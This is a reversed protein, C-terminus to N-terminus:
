KPLVEFYISDCSFATFIGLGNSINTFPENLNRSDQKTSEYLKAYEENVKFVRVLHTGLQKITILPPFNYKNGKFPKFLFKFGAGARGGTDIDTPDPEINEVIIFFYDDENADFEVTIPDLELISNTADNLDIKFTDNSITVGTPPSPITTTATAKKNFYEVAIEYKDGIKIPLDNHPYHYQGSLTDKATLAYSIGNHWIQVTADTIKQVVSDNSGYKLQATLFIDDVQEGAYLYAQVVVLDKPETQVNLDELCSIFNLTLIITIFTIAKM